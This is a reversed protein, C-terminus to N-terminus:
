YTERELDMMMWQKDEIGIQSKDLIWLYWSTTQGNVKEYHQGPEVPSTLFLYNEDGYLVDSEGVYITDISVGNEDYVYLYYGERIYLYKGDSSLVGTASDEGLICVEEGTALNMLYCKGVIDSYFIRNEDLFCYACITCDEMLIEIEETETNYRIFQSIVSQMKEDEYGDVTFYIYPGIGQVRYIGASTKDSIDYLLTKEGDVRIKYLGLPEEESSYQGYYYGDVMIWNYIYMFGGGPEYEKSYLYGLRERESGDMSISYIYYDIVEGLELGIKYFRNNFFELDLTSFYYQGQDGFSHFYANCKESDHSCNSASCVITGSKTEASWYYLNNSEFFYYGNGVKKIDDSQWYPQAPYSEEVDYIEEIDIVPKEVNTGGCGMICIGIMGLLLLTLRKKMFGGWLM